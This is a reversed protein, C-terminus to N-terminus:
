PVRLKVCLPAEGHSACWDLLAAEVEARTIGRPNGAVQDLVDGNPPEPPPAVAAVPPSPAPPPPPALKAELAAAAKPILQLAAGAIAGAIVAGPDPQSPPPAVYRPAYGRWYHRPIYHHGYAPGYRWGGPGPAYFDGAGAEGAVVGLMGAVILTAFTRMPVVATSAAPHCTAASAAIFPGNLRAILKRHETVYDAVKALLEL